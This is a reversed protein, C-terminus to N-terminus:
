TTGGSEGPKLRRRAESIRARGSDYAVGGAAGSKVSDRVFYNATYLAVLERLFYGRMKFAEQMSRWQDATKNAQTYRANALAVSKAGAIMVKIRDESLKYGGSDADRRLKEGEESKAEDIASKAADRLSGADASHESVDMYLQPTRILEDDLNHKDIILLDTYKDLEAREAEAVTPLENIAVKSFINNRKPLM